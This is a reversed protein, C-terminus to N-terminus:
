EYLEACVGAELTSGVGMTQSNIVVLRKPKKDRSVMMRELTCRHKM